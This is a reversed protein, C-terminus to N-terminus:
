SFQLLHRWKPVSQEFLQRDFESLLTWYLRYPLCLQLWIPRSSPCMYRWEFLDCLQLSRNFHHLNSWYLWNSLQVRIWQCNALMCRRKCLTIFQLLQNNFQLINRHLRSPLHMSSSWWLIFLFRWFRMAFKSLLWHIDWMSLRHLSSSLFM